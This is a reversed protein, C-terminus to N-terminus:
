RRLTFRRFSGGFNGESTYVTQFRCAFSDAPCDATLQNGIIRMLPLMIAVLASILLIYEVAAQGKSNKLSFRSLKTM